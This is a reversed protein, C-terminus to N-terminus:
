YMKQRFAEHIDERRFVEPIVKLADGFFDVNIVTHM